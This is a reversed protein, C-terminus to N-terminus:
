SLIKKKKVKKKENTLKVNVTDDVLNKISTNIGESLDRIFLLFSNTDINDWFLYKPDM